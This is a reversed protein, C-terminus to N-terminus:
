AQRQGPSSSEKYSEGCARTHGVKLRSLGRGQPTSSVHLQPLGNAVPLWTRTDNLEGLRLAAPRCSAAAPSAAHGDLASCDHPGSLAHPRPQKRVMYASASSAACALLLVLPAIAAPAAGCGRLAGPGLGFGHRQM